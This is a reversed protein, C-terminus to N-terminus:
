VSDHRCLPNKNLSLKRYSCTRKTMFVVLISKLVSPRPMPCTRPFSFTCVPNQHPLRLAFHRKSCKPASLLIFNFHIKFGNPPRPSSQDPEPYRCTHPRKHGLFHIGPNWLFHPIERIVSSSPIQLINIV